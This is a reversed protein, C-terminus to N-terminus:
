VEENPDCRPVHEPLPDDSVCAEERMRALDQQVQALQFEALRKDDQAELIRAEARFM